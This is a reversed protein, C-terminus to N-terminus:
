KGLCWDAQAFEAKELGKVHVHKVEHDTMHYLQWYGTRDDVFFLTNDPGWRPQTISAKADRGAVVRENAVQGDKWNAVWLETYNWPMNPHNWQTWSVKQGDPSFRPFAYFDAGKAITSVTKTSSDIAVLTNQIDEIKAPHHDEKIVLVWKSDIPHVNFDAFYIKSDEEVIPTTELTEPDLDFVTKSEFESFVIHGDSDRIVFSAGGSAPDARSEFVPM